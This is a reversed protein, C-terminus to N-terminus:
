ERENQQNLVGLSVATVNSTRETAPTSSNRTVTSRHRFRILKQDSQVIDRKARVVISSLSDVGGATPTRGVEVTAARIEVWLVPVGSRATCQRLLFHCRATDSIAGHQHRCSCAAALLNGSDRFSSAGQGQALGLLKSPRLGRPVDMRNGHFAPVAVSLAGRVADM